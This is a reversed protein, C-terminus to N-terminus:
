YERVPDYGFALNHTTQNHAVGQNPGFRPRQSCSGLSLHFSLYIVGIYCSSM